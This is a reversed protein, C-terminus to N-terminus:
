DEYIYRMKDKYRIAKKKAHGFMDAMNDMWWYINNQDSERPSAPIANPTHYRTIKEHSVVVTPTAFNKAIYHWMGDYCLVLRAESIHFLAESIPSRYTLETINMGRRRLKEIIGQWDDNTLIRKWYRPQEANFTPRWIVVKNKIPVRMSDRRFLWNTIPTRDSIGEGYVGSEFWYRNKNRIKKQDEPSYYYRGRSNFVHTVEVDDKRHYFNHIYHMREIITEPDEFHHLYDEDHDWHMELNVKTNYHYAYHHCSNLAWMFDGVGPTGRWTVKQM